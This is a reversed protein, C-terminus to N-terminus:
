PRVHPSSARIILPSPQILCGHRSVTTGIFPQFREITHGSVPKGHTGLEGCTGCPSDARKWTAVPMNPSSSLTLVPM